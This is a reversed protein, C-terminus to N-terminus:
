EVRTALILETSASYLAFSVRTSGIML